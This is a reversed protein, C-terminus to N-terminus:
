GVVARVSVMRARAQPAFPESCGFDDIELDGRDEPAQHAPRLVSPPRLQREGIEGFKRKDSRGM